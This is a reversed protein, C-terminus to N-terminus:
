AVHIEHNRGRDDTAIVDVHMGLRDGFVVIRTDRLANAEVGEAALQKTFGAAYYGVSKLLMEPYSGAPSVRGEPFHIELRAGPAKALVDGLVDVVFAGDVYNNFSVFSHAFNRLASNIRKYKM